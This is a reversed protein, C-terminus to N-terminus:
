KKRTVELQEEYGDWGCDPCYSRSNVCHSCPPNIFCTCSTQVPNEEIIGECGNRNCKETKFYGYVM